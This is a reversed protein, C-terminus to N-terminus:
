LNRLEIMADNITDTDPSNLVTLLELSSVIFFVVKVRPYEGVVRRCIGKEGVAVRFKDSWKEVNPDMLKRRM